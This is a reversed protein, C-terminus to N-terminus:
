QTSPLYAELAVKLELWRVEGMTIEVQQTMKDMKLQEIQKMGATYEELRPKSSEFDKALDSSIASRQRQLEVIQHNLDAIRDLKALKVNKVKIAEVEPRLAEQAVLTTKFKNEAWLAREFNNFYDRTRELTSSLGTVIENSLLGSAVLDNLCEGVSDLGKHELIQLASLSLLGQLKAFVTSEAETASPGTTTASRVLRGRLVLFFSM